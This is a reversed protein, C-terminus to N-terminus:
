AAVGPGAGALTGAATALQAQGAVVGDAAAVGPVSAVTALLGAPVTPRVGAAGGGDGTPVSQRVIVDTGTGAAHFLGDLDHQLTATFTFTGSMFGVGLAIALMTMVLRGKHALLTRVSASLM